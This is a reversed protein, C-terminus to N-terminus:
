CDIRPKGGRESGSCREFCEEGLKDLNGARGLDRRYTGPVSRRESSHVPGAREDLEDGVVERGSHVSFYRAVGFAPEEPHFVEGRALPCAIKNRADV